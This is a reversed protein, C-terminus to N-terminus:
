EDDETTDTDPQADGPGPTVEAEATVIVEFHQASM